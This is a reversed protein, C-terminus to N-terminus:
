NRGTSRPPLEGIVLLAYEGYTGSKRSSLELTLPDPHGPALRLGADFRDGTITVGDNIAVGAGTISPVEDCGRRGADDCEIGEPTDLRVFPDLRSDSAGIM